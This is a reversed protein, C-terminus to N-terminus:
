SPEGTRRQRGIGAMGVLASSFLWVSAPVPVESGFGTGGGSGDVSQYRVLYNDLMLTDIASDFVIDMYFEGSLGILVGYGGGGACNSNQDNACIDVTGADPVNGRGVKSFFGSSSSEGLSIDANTDFGLMSVRSSTIPSSSTNELLVTFTWSKNDVSVSTLMINATAKLGSVIKGGVVGNFNVNIDEGVDLFSFTKASVFASSFYMFLTVFLTVLKRKTM